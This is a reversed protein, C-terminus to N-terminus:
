FQYTLYVVAVVLITKCKLAKSINCLLLSDVLWGLLYYLLCCKLGKIQKFNTRNVIKRNTNNLRKINYM